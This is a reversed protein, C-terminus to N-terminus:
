KESIKFKVRKGEELESMNKNFQNPTVYGLKASPWVMNHDQKIQRLAKDLGRLSTISYDVLFDNKLIGNVREALGNDLCSKGMSRKVKLTKALEIYKKSRYQSGMDTHVILKFNFSSCKRYSTIDKLCREAHISQMDTSGRLAVIELTYADTLSFIYYDKFYSIDGVVLQNPGCLLLGKILNECKGFHGRSDTTKIWKKVPPLAYGRASMSKEFRNLGIQRALSEKHWITRLGARSKSKRTIVVQEEMQDILHEQISIKACQEHYYQKSINLMKFVEKAFYKEKKEVLISIV